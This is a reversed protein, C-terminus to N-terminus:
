DNRKALIFFQSIAIMLLLMVPLIEETQQYVQLGSILWGVSSVFIIQIRKMKYGLILLFLSALISLILGETM